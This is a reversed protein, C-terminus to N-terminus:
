PADTGSWVAIQAFPFRRRIESLRSEGLVCAVSALADAVAGDPHVVRAARGNTLAWGTRPDVIHSYRRGGIEVFQESDGSTAVCTNALVLRETTRAGTRVEVRWGRRGPPPEGVALDGGLDVLCRAHGRSRLVERAADAALGKGIGGFDIGADARSVRARGGFPDVELVGAGAAVRAAEIADASPRKGTRRAERWLAVVPGVAISFAGGTRDHLELGTEMARLLDHSVAHWRGPESERLFVRVESSPRYDSLVQELREIEDFAARAAEAADAERDAYLVIRARAGMAVTAYEFRSQTRQAHGPGDVVRCSIM